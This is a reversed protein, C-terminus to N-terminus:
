ETFKGNEYMVEGDVVIQSDQSLDCIMDWHIMSKNLSGTEPYGAGVAMHFSGGIKEDYLINKTFRNIQYNTGIAFEGVYRAGADTDLMRLLFPENKVASAQVVKGEEFTLQVGEVVRGHIVAPFTYRVWGNLSNEVPGTFIEGDPMNSLGCANVFKRGKVSLALDVNPGRLHVRDHGELRDIHKQQDRQVGQWFAVPDPTDDDAHCAAFAFDQYEQFGMDAEMAYAQTPFQTSMWRLGGEAGRKM